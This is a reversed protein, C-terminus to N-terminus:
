PAREASVQAADPRESADAADMLRAALMRAERPTLRAVRGRYDDELTVLPKSDVAIYWDVNM